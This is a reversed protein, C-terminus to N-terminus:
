FLLGQFENCFFSSYYNLDGAGETVFNESNFM